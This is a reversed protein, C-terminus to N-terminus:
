DECTGCHKCLNALATTSLDPESDEDMSSVSSEQTKIALEPQIVDEAPEEPKEVVLWECVDCGEHSRGNNNNKSPGDLGVCSPCYWKAPAEEDIALKLCSVHYAAECGDCIIRGESDAKGGCDKCIGDSGSTGTQKPITSHGSDCPPTLERLAKHASDTRSWPSHRRRPSLSRVTLEFAIFVQKIDHDLLAPNQAYDGNRMKADIIQLGILDDPKNVDFTAALLDCLMAFKESILIDFIAKHCIAKNAELSAATGDELQVLAGSNEESHVAGVPDERGAGQGDALNGHETPQCGNYRLADRICSQIGGSGQNGATSQLVGELKELVQGPKPAWRAPFQHRAGGREHQSMSLSDRLVSGFDPPMHVFDVLLQLCRSAPSVGIGTPAAGALSMSGLVADATDRLASVAAALRADPLPSWTPDTRPAPPSCARSCPASSWARDTNRVFPLSPSRHKPLAVM